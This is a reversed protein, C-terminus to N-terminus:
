FEGKTGTFDGEFDGTGRTESGRTTEPERLMIFLRLSSGDVGFIEAEADSSPFYGRRLECIVGEFLRETEEGTYGPNIFWFRVGDSWSLGIGTSEGGDGLM